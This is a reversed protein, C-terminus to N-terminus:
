PLIISCKLFAMETHGSSKESQVVIHKRSQKIETKSMPLNYSMENRRKMSGLGSIKSTHNKLNKCLKIKNGTIEM